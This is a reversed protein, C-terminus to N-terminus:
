SPDIDKPERYDSLWMDATIRGQVEVMAVMIEEFTINYEFDDAVKAIAETIEMKLRSIRKRSEMEEPSIRRTM